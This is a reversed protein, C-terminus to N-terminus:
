GSDCHPRPPPFTGSNALYHYIRAEENRRLSPRPRRLVRTFVQRVQSVTLAPCKKGRGSGSSRWFGCRWCRCRGLARDRAADDAAVGRCGLGQEADAGLVLRWRMLGELPEMPM